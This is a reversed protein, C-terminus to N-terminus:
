GRIDNCAGGGNGALVGVHHRLRPRFRRQGHKVDVRGVGVLGRLTICTMFTRIGLLHFCGIDAEVTMFFVKRNIEGDFMLWELVALTGGAVVRVKRFVFLQQQQRRTLQTEFAVIGDRLFECLRLDLM